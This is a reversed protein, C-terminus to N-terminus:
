GTKCVFVPLGYGAIRLRILFAINMNDESAFTLSCFPLDQSRMGKSTLGEMGIKIYLSMTWYNQTLDKGMTQRKSSDLNLNYKKM